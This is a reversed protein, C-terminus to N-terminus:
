SEIGYKMELFSQLDRPLAAALEQWTRIRLRSAFSLAKVASLVAFWQEILDGRRADVLLCFSAEGAYAALVNRILQYGEICPRSVRRPLNVTPDDPDVNAPLPPPATVRRPLRELDFVATLDRYQEVLAPAATQFDNETLKAECFLDGLVMDVETRDVLEKKRTRQTPRERLPVGPRVGFCPRSEGDVGFLAAVGPSLREGDFVEPHCFISMLLADSSSATDLEMWRWDKRARSRRSATHPKGLRRLWAADACIREYSQPHFNGHRGQEDRGFIVAPADGPSIDHLLGKERAFEAARVNLARRLQAASWPPALMFILREVALSQVSFLDKGHL